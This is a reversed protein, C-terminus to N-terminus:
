KEGSKRVERYITSGSIGTRAQIEKITYERSNYLTVAMKLASKDAKPRGGVRGRARACEIGERVRELTVEREMESIAAFLKVVLRGTPTGIDINEKLSVLTIGKKVFWDILAILEASRRGLRSLSEIVVTDGPRLADVMREYEKRDMTIGTQKDCYIREVGYANLAELQRDLNQKQTSVRAYGIKM